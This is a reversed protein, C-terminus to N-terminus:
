LASRFRLDWRKQREKSLIGLDNQNSVSRLAFACSRPDLFSDGVERFPDAMLHLFGSRGHLRDHDDSFLGAM